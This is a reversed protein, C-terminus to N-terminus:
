GGRGPTPPQGGNCRLLPFCFPCHVISLFYNAFVAQSFLECNCWLGWSARFFFDTEPGEKRSWEGGWFVPNAGVNEAPVLLLLSALPSAPSPSPWVHALLLLGGGLPSSRVELSIYSCGDWFVLSTGKLKQGWELGPSHEARLPFAARVPPGSNLCVDWSYPGAGGGGRFGVEVAAWAALLCLVFNIKPDLFNRRKAISGRSGGPDGFFCRQAPGKRPPPDGFVWIFFFDRLFPYLDKFLNAM